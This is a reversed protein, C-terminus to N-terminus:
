IVTIWNLMFKGTESLSLSNVEVYYTEQRIGHMVCAGGAGIIFEEPKLKFKNIFLNYEKIIDNKNM